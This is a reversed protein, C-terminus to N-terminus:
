KPRDLMFDDKYDKRLPFGEWDDELFLRRLDKHEDYLIGFLDYVEREQYEAIKYVSSITPIVPNERPIKASVFLSHNIQSSFLLYSLEFVGDELWDIAMHDRLMDFKLESDSKAIEMFKVIDEAKIEVSARDTNETAEAGPFVKKIHELLNEQNM